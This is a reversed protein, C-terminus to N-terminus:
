NRIPLYYINEIGKKELHNLLALSMGFGQFIRMYHEPGRKAFFVNLEEDYYGVIREKDGRISLKIYQKFMKEM